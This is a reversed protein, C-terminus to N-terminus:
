EVSSRLNAARDRNRQNDGLKGKSGQFHFSIDIGHDDFFHGVHEKLHQAFSKQPNGWLATM